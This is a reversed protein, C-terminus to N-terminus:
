LGDFVAVYKSSSFLHFRNNSSKHTVDALGGAASPPPVVVVALMLSTM